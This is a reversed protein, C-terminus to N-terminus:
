PRGGDHAGNPAFRSPAHQHQTQPHTAPHMDVPALWDGLGGVKAPASFFLWWILALLLVKALMIWSVERWLDSM